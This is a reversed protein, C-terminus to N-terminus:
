RGQQIVVAADAVATHLEPVMDAPIEHVAPFSVFEFRKTFEENTALMMELAKAQCNGVVVVRDM